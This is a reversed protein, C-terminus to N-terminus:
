FLDGKAVCVVLYQIGKVVVLFQRESEDLVSTVALKSAVGVLAVRSCPISVM